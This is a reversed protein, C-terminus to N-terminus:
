DARDYENGWDLKQGCVSCYKQGPYLIENRLCSPCGNREIGDFAIYRKPKKPIQKELAEIGMVVAKMERPTFKFGKFVNIAEQETMRRGKQWEALAEDIAIWVLDPNSEFTQEGDDDYDIFENFKKKLLEAFERAGDLKGLEIGALCGSSYLEDKLYNFEEITIDFVGYENLNDEVIQIQEELTM